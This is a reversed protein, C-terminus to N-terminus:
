NLSRYYFNWYLYYSNFFYPLVLYSLISVKYFHWSYNNFSIYFIFFYFYFYILSMFYCISESLDYFSSFLLLYKSSILYFDSRFSLNFYYYLASYFLYLNFIFSKYDFKFSFSLYIYFNEAYSDLKFYCILYSSM